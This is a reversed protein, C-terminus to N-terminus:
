NIKKTKGCELAIREETKESYLSFLYKKSSDLDRHKLLGNEIKSQFKEIGFAGVHM